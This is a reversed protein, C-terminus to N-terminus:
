GGYVELEVVRSYANDNSGLAVIRVAEATLADFESGVHGATNGRVQAVTRWEGGALVRVDWDRLGYRAAAYRSSDLTYLEVRDVQAPEALRVEYTDPFQSRTGDNWGTRVDWDESDRNGDVGGCVDFNGHTSSATAQEGLALNDGAGKQPPAAVTVPVSVAERGSEVRLEYEGPPADRPASLEIPATVTYGPPLYSSIMARSAELPREATIFADAYIPEASENTMAAEITGTLCPLPVIELRDPSASLAVPTRDKKGQGLADVTGTALAVAALAAIVVRRSGSARIM